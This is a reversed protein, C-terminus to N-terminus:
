WHAPSSPAVSLRQRAIVGGTLSGIGLGIIAGMGAEAILPHVIQGLIQYVEDGLTLAVVAVSNGILFGGLAYITAVVLWWRSRRAQQACWLLFWLASGIVAGFAAGETLHPTTGTRLLQWRISWAFIETVIWILQTLTKWTPDFFLTRFVIRRPIWIILEFILFATFHGASLTSSHAVWQGFAEGFVLGFTGGIVQLGIWLFWITMFDQFRDFRM